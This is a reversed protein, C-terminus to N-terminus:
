SVTAFTSHFMRKEFHLGEALTMEFATFMFMCEYESHRISTDLM